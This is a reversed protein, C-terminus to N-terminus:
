LDFYKLYVENYKNAIVKINYTKSHLILTQSEILKLANIEAAEINEYYFSIDFENTDKPLLSKSLLDDDRVIPTINFSIAELLVNPMGESKSLFIIFRSIKYIENLQETTLNGLFSIHECNNISEMCERSYFEDGESNQTNLPGIIYLKYGRSLFVDKFFQIGLLTNKRPIVAGVIIIIRQKEEMLENSTPCHIGNPIKDIPVTLSHQINKNHIQTTLSNNFTIKSLLFRNIFKSKGNLLTDFDDKGDLTSKLLIKKKLLYASILADRHFGHLHVLKVKYRLFFYIFQLLRIIGGGRINIVSFNLRDDKVHIKSFKFKSNTIVNFFIVNHRGLSSALKKAQSAAGSYSFYNYVIYSIM